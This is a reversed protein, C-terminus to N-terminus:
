GGRLLVASAAALLPSVILIGTQLESMLDSQLGLQREVTERADLEQRLTTADTAVLPALEDVLLRAEQRLATRPVQYVAAVLTTGLGGFVLLVQVDVHDHSGGYALMSAGLAFTTLAVLSGLAALLQSSLLRHDLYGHLRRAATAEAARTGVVAARIGQMATVAPAGGIIALVTLAVGRVTGTSVGIVLNLGVLVSAVAAAVTTRLQLTRWEVPQVADIVTRGMRGVVFVLGSALGLAVVLVGWLIFPVDSAARQREVFAWVWLAWAALGFLAM